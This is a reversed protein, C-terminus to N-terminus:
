SYVSPPLFFIEICFLLNQNSYGIFSNYLTNKCLIINNKQSYKLLFFGLYLRLTTNSTASVAYIYHFIDYVFGLGAVSSIEFDYFRNTFNQFLHNDDNIGLVIVTFIIALKSSAICISTKGSLLRKTPITWIWMPKLFFVVCFCPENTFTM